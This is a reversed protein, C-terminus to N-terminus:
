PLLQNTNEHQRLFRIFADNVPEPREIPAMHGADQLETASCRPLIDGLLRAIDRVPAPSRSGSLLRTPISLGELEEVLLAESILATFDMAVKPMVREVRLQVTEPMRAFADRGNWYDVFRIAARRLDNQRVHARVESQLTWIENGSPAGTAFLLPFLM